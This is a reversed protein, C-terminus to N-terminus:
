FLVGLDSESHSPNREVQAYNTHVPIYCAFGDFSSM